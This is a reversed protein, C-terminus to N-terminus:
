EAPLSVFELQVCHKGGLGDGSKVVDDFSTVLQQRPDLFLVGAEKDVIAAGGPGTSSDHGESNERQQREEVRKKKTKHNGPIAICFSTKTTPYPPSLPVKM